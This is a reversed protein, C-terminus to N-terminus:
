FDQTTEGHTMGNADWADVSMHKGPVIGKIGRLADVGARQQVLRNEIKDAGAQGSGGDAGWEVIDAHRQKTIAMLVQDGIRIPKGEDEEEPRAGMPCPGSVRIDGEKDRVTMGGKKEFEWKVDRYGHSVAEAMSDIDGVYTWKYVLGKRKSGESVSYLGFQGDPNRQAPSRKRPQTAGTRERRLHAQSLVPM